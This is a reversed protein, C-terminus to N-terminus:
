KRRKVRTLRLEFGVVRGVKEATDITMGHEGAMFRQIPAVNIEADRAVAYLSSGSAKIARRIMDNWTLKKAM